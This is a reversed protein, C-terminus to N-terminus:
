LPRTMCDTDPLTIGGVRRNKRLVATATQPREHNGIFKQFTQKETFYAMPIKIPITNFRYIEEPLKSMKTINFRRIWLIPYISGSIQIKM